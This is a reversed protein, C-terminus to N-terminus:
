NALQDTDSNAGLFTNNTGSTNGYGTNYGVYTNFNGSTNNKGSYFGVGTNYNGTNTTGRSNLSFIGLATNDIGYLQIVENGLNINFSVDDYLVLNPFGQVSM